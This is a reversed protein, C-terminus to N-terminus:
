RRDAADSEAFQTRNVSLAIATSATDNDTLTLTAGSVPLPTPTPTQGADVVEAGSVAITEAGEAIGDDTPTLTFMAEGSTANAPITLTFSGVATFDTDAVASGDGVTVTVESDTTRAGANMAATVTVETPGAGEAVEMPALSLAIATSATDNDTLTLTAPSVPLAVPTPTQGADVVEEGSVTITEAGEAIDDDTPTLTFSAEGSTANAPITLTFSGVAAFDTGATATNGAVSVEVETAEARAGRNMMATVTVTAGPAGVGESVDAPNVTLAIADSPVDDDTLTLTAANVVLEPLAAVAGNVTVTEDTEDVNDNEPTLTFTAQGSTTNPPITLTFPTVPTFDVAGADGNGSVTLAVVTAETRAGSALTATVTVTRGGGDESVGFRRWPSISRCPRRGRRDGIAPDGVRYGTLRAFPPPSPVTRNSTISMRSRRGHVRNRDPFEGRVAAVASATGSLLNGTATFDVTVEVQENALATRSLTFSVTDGEEVPDADAAISIVPLDNDTVTVTGM